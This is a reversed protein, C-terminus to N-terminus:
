KGGTTNFHKILSLGLMIVIFFVITEKGGALVKGYIVWYIFQIQLLDSNEQKKDEYNQGKM